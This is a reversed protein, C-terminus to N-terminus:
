KGFVYNVSLSLSNFFNLSFDNASGQTTGSTKQHNYNINGLVATLGLRKVPFYVFDLGVGGGFSNSHYDTTSNSGSNFNQESRQYSLKPGTRIGIKNEYLFYKRLYISGYYTNAAQSQPSYYSENEQKSRSYGIAVGIDLKDAIFYSYNPSFSYSTIKANNNNIYANTTPDFNAYNYKSTSFGFGAGLMQSGKETQAKATQIAIISVFVLLLKKYM